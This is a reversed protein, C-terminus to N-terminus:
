ASVTLRVASRKEKTAPNHCAKGAGVRAAEVAEHKARETAHTYRRTTKPDSHGMLEAITSESYGGEALRTGFTHRLDHWHLDHIGALSCAAAFGKKVDTYPMGTKPSVFVYECGKAERRLALMVARVDKNM